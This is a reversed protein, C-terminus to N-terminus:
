QCSHGTSDVLTTQPHPPHHTHSTIKSPCCFILTTVSITYKHKVIENAHGAGAAVGHLGDADRVATGDVREEAVGDVGAVECVRGGAGDLGELVDVLVDLGDELELEEDDVGALVLGVGDVDCAPIGELGLRGEGVLAKCEGVVGDRRGGGFADAESQGPDLPAHPHSHEDPLHQLLMLVLIHGVPLEQLM